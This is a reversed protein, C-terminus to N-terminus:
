MGSMKHLKGLKSAIRYKGLRKMLKYKRDTLKALSPETQDLYEKLEAAKRRGEKKEHSDVLFAAYNKLIMKAIRKRLFEDRSKGLPKHSRYVGIVRRIESFSYAHGRERDIVQEYLIEPIIMMSQAFIFPLISYEQYISDNNKEPHFEQERLFETKYCLCSFELCNHFDEYKDQLKIMDIQRNNCSVVPSLDSMEGTRTNITRRGTIFVDAGSDELKDIVPRIQDRRFRDAPRALKLYRGTASHVGSLFCDGTGKLDSDIIVVDSPFRNKFDEAIDMSRDSSEDNVVIVELRDDAGCLSDLCRELSVEANHVPIIVSLQKM